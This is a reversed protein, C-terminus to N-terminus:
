LTAFRLSAAMVIYAMVTYAMVIIDCFASESIRGVDAPPGAHARPGHGCGQPECRVQQRPRRRRDSDGDQASAEARPAARCVPQGAPSALDQVVRGCRRRAGPAAAAARAARDALPLQDLARGDAGPEHVPVRARVHRAGRRRSAAGDRARLPRHRRDLHRPQRHRAGPRVERRVQAM